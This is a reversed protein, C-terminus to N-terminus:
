KICVIGMCPLRSGQRGVTARRKELSDQQPRTRSVTEKKEMEEGMLFLAVQTFVPVLKKKLFFKSFHKELYCWILGEHGVVDRGDHLTEKGKKRWVLM